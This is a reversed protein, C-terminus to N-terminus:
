LGIARRTRRRASLGPDIRIGAVRLMPRAVAELPPNTEYEVLLMADGAPSVVAEPASPADVAEVIPKPPLKYATDAGLLPTAIALGMVLGICRNM